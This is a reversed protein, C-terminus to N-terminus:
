RGGRALVLAGGEGDAETENEVGEVAVEEVVM